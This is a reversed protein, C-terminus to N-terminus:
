SVTPHPGDEPRNIFVQAHFNGNLLVQKGDLIIGALKAPFRGNEGAQTVGIQGPNRIM